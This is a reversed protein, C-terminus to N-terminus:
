IKKTYNLSIWGAGSKLKGWGNSEDIITYVGRDYICTSIGYNTGPGKRVNLASVSVQVIYPKFTDDKEVSNTVDKVITIYKANVGSNIALNPTDEVDKNIIVIDGVVKDVVWIKNKVWNPVNKGNSYLANSAIKVHDGKEITAKSEPKVEPKVEPNVDANLKKNVKNAIDGMRNYLYDGPCSKNAFWRHVTMNQKDVQGILSEDGKWKLEKINNRECIDAVLEILANYAKTNVAYPHYTDSAVEITIARHDNSSSSSCWSRDKEEVYMGIRGDYGIGYNSSAERDPDAFLHGLTEVACQGVVCHITITDIEHNRGVTRNPSIKTYNVLKSNTFTM